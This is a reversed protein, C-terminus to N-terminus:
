VEPKPTLIFKGVPKEGDMLTFGGSFWYSDTPPDPDDPGDPPVHPRPRYVDDISPPQSGSLAYGLGKAQALDTANPYGRRAISRSHISPYMLADQDRNHPLGIAHGVEHSAVTALYALAWTRGTDYAQELWDNCQNRALYSWALTSGGLSKLGAYIRADGRSTAGDVSIMELDALAYTWNNSPAWFARNTDEESLGPAAKFNRAFKLNRRCADPWNAEQAGAAMVGVPFDPFGCRPLELLAETAPGSEGDAIGLRGHKELALADFQGSFYEQYSAIATRVEKDHLKLRPVDDATVGTLHAPNDFHGLSYLRSILEEQNM